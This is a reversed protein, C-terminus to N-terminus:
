LDMPEQILVFPQIILMAFIHEKEFEQRAMVRKMQGEILWGEIKKVQDQELAEAVEIIGLEENVWFVLGKSAQYGLDIWNVPLIRKALAMQQENLKKM